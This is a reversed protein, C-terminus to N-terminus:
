NKIPKSIFKAIRSDFKPKNDIAVCLLKAENSECIKNDGIKDLKTGSVLLHCTDTKLKM